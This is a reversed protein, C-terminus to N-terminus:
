RNSTASPALSQLKSLAGTAALRVDANTDSLARMIANSSEPTNLGIRGIAEVASIRLGSEEDSTCAVLAPVANSAMTGAAGLGQASLWRVVPSGSRLGATLPEIAREMEPLNPNRYAIVGLIVAARARLKLLEPTEAISYKEDISVIANPLRLSLEKLSEPAILIESIEPIIEPGATALVELAQNPENLGGGIEVQSLWERITRGQLTTLVKRQPTTPYGWYLWGGGGVVMLILVAIAFRRKM